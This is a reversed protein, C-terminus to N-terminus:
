PAFREGVVYGTFMVVVVEIENNFTIEGLARLKRLTEEYDCLPYTTAGEINNTWLFGSSTGLMYADEQSILYEGTSRRFVGVTKIHDTLQM